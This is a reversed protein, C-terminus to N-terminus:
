YSDKTSSKAYLGAPRGPRGPQLKGRNSYCSTVRLIEEGGQPAHYDMVPNGGANFETYMQLGVHLYLFASHSNLTKDLLVVFHGQGPILGLSCNLHVLCSTM